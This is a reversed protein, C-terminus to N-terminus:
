RLGSKRLNVKRERLEEEKAKRAEELIREQEARWRAEEEIMRKEQNQREREQREAREKRFEPTEISKDHCYTAYADTKMNLKEAAEYSSGTIKSYELVRHYFRLNSAKRKVNIRANILFLFLLAIALLNLLIVYWFAGVMLDYMFDFM